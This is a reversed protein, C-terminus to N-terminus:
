REKKNYEWPVLKGSAPHCTLIWEDGTATSVYFEVVLGEKTTKEKMSQINSGYREYARNWCKMVGEKSRPLDFNGEARCPGGFALLFLALFIARNMTKEM